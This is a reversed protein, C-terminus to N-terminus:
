FGDGVGLRLELGRFSLKFGILLLECFVLFIERFVVAGVGDEAGQFVCADLLVAAFVCVLVAEQRAGGLLGLFTAAVGAHAVKCMDRGDRHVFFKGGVALAQARALADSDLVFIALVAPVPWIAARQNHQRAGLLVFDPLNDLLLLTYIAHFNSRGRNTSDFDFLSLLRRSM